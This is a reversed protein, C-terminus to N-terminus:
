HADRGRKYLTLRLGVFNDLNYLGYAGVDDLVHQSHHYYYLAVYEDVKLGTEFQWGVQRFQVNTAEGHVRNDFYFSYKGYKVMDIKFNVACGKDWHEGDSGMDKYPFYADRHNIVRYSDFDFQDLSLLHLEDARAATSFFMILALLYRM